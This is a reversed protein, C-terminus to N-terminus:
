PILPSKVFVSSGPYIRTSFHSLHHDIPTTPSASSSRDTSKLRPSPAVFSIPFSINEWSSSFHSFLLRKLSQKNLQNFSLYMNIFIIFWTKIRKSVRINLSWINHNNNINFLRRIKLCCINHNNNMNFLRRINLCCINHNNNM